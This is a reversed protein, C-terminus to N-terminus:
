VENPEPLEVRWKIGKIIDGYFYLYLQGQALHLM